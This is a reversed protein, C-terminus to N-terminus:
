QHSRDEVVVGLFEQVLSIQSLLHCCDINVRYEHRILGIVEGKKTVVQVIPQIVGLNEFSIRIVENM